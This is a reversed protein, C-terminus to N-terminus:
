KNGAEPIAKHRVAAMMFLAAVLIGVLPGVAYIWYYGWQGDFIYPGFARAPNMAAGAVPGMLMVEIGVVAGIPIAAFDKLPARVLISGEIVLMMLFSLWVEIAFAPLASVGLEISPLNAGMSARAGLLGFLLAAGAASGLMQAAIYAPVLRWPFRNTLAFALTLAPNVHAGSIGGFAWVVIMVVIGSCTGAMLPTPIGGLASSVMVAGAAFFVIAATGVFEAFSAVLTRHMM